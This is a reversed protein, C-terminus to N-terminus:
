WELSAEDYGVSEECYFQELYKGFNAFPGDNMVLNKPSIQNKHEWVIKDQRLTRIGLEMLFRGIIWPFRPTSHGTLCAEQLFPGLPTLTVIIFMKGFFPSEATITHTQPGQARVRTTLTQHFISPLEILGFLKLGIVDEALDLVTKHLVHEGRVDMNDRDTGYKATMKQKIHLFKFVDADGQGMWQHVTDFHYWDATNNAPEMIHMKWQGFPITAIERVGPTDRIEDLITMEFEPAKNTPHYWLYIINLLERVEYKTANVRTSKSM